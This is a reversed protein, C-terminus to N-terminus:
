DLWGRRLAKFCAERNMGNFREACTKSRTFHSEEAVITGLGFSGLLVLAVIAILRKHGRPHTPRSGVPNRTNAESMFTLCRLDRLLEPQTVVSM